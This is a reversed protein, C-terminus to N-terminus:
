RIAGAPRARLTFRVAALVDDVFREKAIEGSPPPGIHGDLMLQSLGHVLAWAAWAARQTERPEALGAFADAFADATDRMAKRLPAGDNVGSAGSFMLRFRQPEALAFRVYAQAVARGGAPAAARLEGGLRGFGELAVAALLASRDAFHRYPAAHSVGARRAAERLTLGRPGREDLVAGAAQVLAQHLDGHHYPRKARSSTSVLFM